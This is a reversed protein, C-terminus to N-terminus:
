SGRSRRARTPTPSPKRTPQVTPAATVPARTAPATTPPITTPDQGSTPSPSASSGPGSTASAAPTSAGPAARDGAATGSGPVTTAEPTPTGRRREPSPTETPTATPDPGDAAVIAVDGEDEPLDAAPDHSSAFGVWGGVFGALALASFALKFANHRENGFGRRNSSM